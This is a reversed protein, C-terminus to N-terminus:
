FLWPQLLWLIFVKGYKLQQQTQAALGLSLFHDLQEELSAYSRCRRCVM